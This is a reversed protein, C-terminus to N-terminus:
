MKLIMLELFKLVLNIIRMMLVQASYNINELSVEKGALSFEKGTM